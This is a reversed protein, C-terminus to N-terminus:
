RHHFKQARCLRYNDLTNLNYLACFLSISGQTRDCEIQILLIQASKQKNMCPNNVRMMDDVTASLSM